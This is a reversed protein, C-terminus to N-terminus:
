GKLGAGIVQFCAGAIAPSFGMISLTMSVPVNDSLSRILPLLPSPSPFLKLMGSKKEEM